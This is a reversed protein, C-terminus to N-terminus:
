DAPRKLLELLHEFDAASLAGDRFFLVRSDADLLFIASSQQQLGWRARGHDMDAIMPSDPFKKKNSKLANLAFGTAGLTVDDVNIINYLAFDRLTGRAALGTIRDLAWRNLKDASPRAALYQLLTWRGKLQESSWPRFRLEDDIVLVEGKDEILISPLPQGTEPTAHVFGSTVTLLLVLPWFLKM